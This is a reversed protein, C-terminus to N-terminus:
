TSTSRGLRRGPGGLEVPGEQRDPHAGRQGAPQGPAVGPGVARHGHQGRRRQAGAGDPPQGLGVGRHRRQAQSFDTPMTGDVTLDSIPVQIAITHVNYSKLGDVGAAAATHLLHLNQFPRLDALDFVSGLDVYFGDLRQGAFVRVRKHDVSHIAQSSLNAYTPMSRPGVNCPPCSLKPGLTVTGASTTRTLSYFQRRNWTADSLGKVM